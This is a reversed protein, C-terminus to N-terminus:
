RWRGRAKKNLDSEVYRLAKPDSPSKSAFVFWGSPHVIKIHRDIELTCGFREALARVDRLWTRSRSM